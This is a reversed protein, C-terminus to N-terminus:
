DAREGSADTDGGGDEDTADPDFNEPVVTPHDIGGPARRTAMGAKLGDVSLYNGISM